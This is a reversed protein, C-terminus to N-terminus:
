GRRLRRLILKLRTYEAALGMLCLGAALLLAPWLGQDRWLDRQLRVLGLALFLLGSVLFNKMQKPISLLVFAVASVPLLIEFVREEGRWEPKEGAALGLLFLSILVHGPLVFRFAKAVGRM